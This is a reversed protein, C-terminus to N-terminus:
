AVEVILPAALFLGDRDVLLGQLPVRVGYLCLVPQLLQPTLGLVQDPPALDGLRGNALCKLHRGRAPCARRSESLFTLDLQANLSRVTSPPVLFTRGQALM